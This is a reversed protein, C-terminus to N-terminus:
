RTLLAIAGLLVLAGGTVYVATPIASPAVVPAPEPVPAQVPYATNPYPYQFPYPYYTPVFIPDPVPTPAPTPTPAPAPDAGLRRGGLSRGCYSSEVAVYGAAIYADRQGLPISAYAGNPARYCHREEYGHSPSNVQETM